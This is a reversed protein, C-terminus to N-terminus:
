EIDSLEKVVAAAKRFDGLTLSYCTLRGITVTAPMADAYDEAGESVGVDAFPELAALAKDLAQRGRAIEGMSAACDHDLEAIKARLGENEEWASRLAVLVKEIHSVSKIEVEALLWPYYPPKNVQKAAAKRKELVAEIGAVIERIGEPPKGSVMAKVEPDELWRRVYVEMRAMHEEPPLKVLRQHDDDDM